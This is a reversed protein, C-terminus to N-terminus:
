HSSLPPEVHVWKHQTHVWDSNMKSEANTEDDLKDVLMKFQIHASQAPASSCIHLIDEKKKMLTHRGDFKSKMVWFIEM